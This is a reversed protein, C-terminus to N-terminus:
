FRSLVVLSRERKRLLSAREKKKKKRKLPDVMMKQNAWVFIAREDEIDNRYLAILDLLCEKVM